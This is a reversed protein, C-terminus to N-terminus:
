IVAEGASKGNGRRRKGYVLVRRGRHRQGCIVFKKPTGNRQYIGYEQVARELSGPSVSWRRLWEVLDAESAFDQAWRTTQDPQEPLIAVLTDAVIQRIEDYQDSVTM